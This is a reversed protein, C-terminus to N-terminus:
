RCAHAWWSAAAKAKRSTCFRATSFIAAEIDPSIFIDTNETLPSTIGKRDAAFKSLPVDLAIPGEVYCGGIQGRRNMLTLAAADITAPMDPNPFEVRV